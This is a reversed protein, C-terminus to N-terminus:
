QNYGGEILTKPDIVANNELWQKGKPYLEQTFWQMRQEADGYDGNAIVDRFKAAGPYPARIRSGYNNSFNTWFQRQQATAAITNQLIVRQEYNVMAVGAAWIAAENRNKRATDLDRWPDNRNTLSATITQGDGTVQRTLTAFPAINLVPYDSVFDYGNIRVPYTGDDPFVHSLVLVGDDVYATAEESSGDGWDVNVPLSDGSDGAIGTGM